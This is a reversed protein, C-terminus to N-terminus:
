FSLRVPTSSDRTAGNGLQGFLNRGWCWVGGDADLACTYGWGAAIAAAPPLHKVDVPLAADTTTGDGLGGDANAGWCAVSGDVRLACAHELGASLAIVDRLGPVAVPAPVCTGYACTTPGAPGPYPVLGRGWCSVTGDGLLACAYSAGATASTAGELGAVTAYRPLSGGLVSGDGLAGGMSDDGWCSVAGAALVACDIDEGAAIATAAAVRQALAFGSEYGLCTVTADVELACTQFTGLAISRAAALQFASVPALQDPGNQGDGLEGFGNSGWCAYIGSARRACTSQAGARVDVADDLQGVRVPTAAGVTTGDGLEGDDNLGWCWASGEDDVACAHNQGASLAVIRPVTPM